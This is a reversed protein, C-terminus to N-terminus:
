GVFCSNKYISHDIIGRIIKIVIVIHFHAVLFMRRRTYRMAQTDALHMHAYGLAQRLIMTAPTEPMRPMKELTPHARLEGVAEDWVEGLSAHLM